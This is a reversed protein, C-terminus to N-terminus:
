LEGVSELLARTMDDEHKDSAPGLFPQPAMYVTGFEVFPAYDVSPGIEAVPGSVDAEISAALAGTLKPALSRADAEIAEAAERVADRARAPAKAAEAVLAAALLDVDSM